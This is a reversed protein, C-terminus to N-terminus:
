CDSLLTYLKKHVKELMPEDDRFFYTMWGIIRSPGHIKSINTEFFDCLATITANYKTTGLKKKRQVLTSILLGALSASLNQCEQEFVIDNIIKDADETWEHEHDLLSFLQVMGGTHRANLRTLTTATKIQQKILKILLPRM